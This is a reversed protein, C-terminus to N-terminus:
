LQQQTSHTCPQSHQPLSGLSSTAAKAPIITFLQQPFSTAATATIALVVTIKAANIVAFNMAARTHLSHLTTFTTATICAIIHSSKCPNNYIATTPFTTAATATIAIDVTIIAANIVEFNMAATATLTSPQSHQPLSVLFSTATKAPNNYIATTAKGTFSIAPLL